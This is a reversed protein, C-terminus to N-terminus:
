GRTSTSSCATGGTSSRSAPPTQLYFSIMRDNTHMGLTSVRIGRELCVDLTSGVDDLSNVEFM